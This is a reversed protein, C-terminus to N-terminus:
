KKMKGQSEEDEVAADEAKIAAKQEDTFAETPIVTESNGCGIVTAALLTLALFRLYQM